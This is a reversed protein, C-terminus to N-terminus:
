TVFIRHRLKFGFALSNQKSNCQSRQDESYYGNSGSTIDTSRHFGITIRDNINSEGVPKLTSTAEGPPCAIM